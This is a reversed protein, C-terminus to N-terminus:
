PFEEDFPSDALPSTIEVHSLLRSVFTNADFPKEIFDVAGLKLSEQRDRDCPSASIFIVPTNRSIHRQKLLGCVEFGSSDPLEIDLTILDFKTQAAKEVARKGTHAADVDCGVMTLVRVMAMALPMEDEVILIRIRNSMIGDMDQNRLLTKVRKEFDQL